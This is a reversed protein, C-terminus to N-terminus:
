KDTAQFAWAPKEKWKQKSTIKNQKHNPQRHQKLRGICKTIYDELKQILANVSDQNSAFERGVNKRSLYQREVGHKPHLTKLITMLKRTTQDM